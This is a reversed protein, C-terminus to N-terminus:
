DMYGMDRLRKQIREERMKDLNIREAKKPEKEPILSETLQRLKQCLMREQRALNLTEGPDTRLDYLEEPLEPNKLGYTYKHTETRVGHILFDSPVGTVSVFAASSEWFRGKILPLCSRGDIGRWLSPAAGILDLVTPMIDISRIIGEHVMDAPLRGPWHLILPVRVLFDYVHIAHGECLNKRYTNIFMRGQMDNLRDRNVSQLFKKIKKQSFEEDLLKNKKLIATQKLPTQIFFFDKGLNKPMLKVLRFFDLLRTWWHFSFNNVTTHLDITDLMPIVSEAYLQHVVSPGTLFAIEYLARGKARKIRLRKCTYDVATGERYTEATTKEGHDGTFVILTEKDLANFIRGLEADLASVANEYDNRENGSRHTKPTKQRPLHLEWLHLMLFWPKRYYGDRLHQILHDGWSTHLYDSPARYEYRDFGRDLGLEPLLPGTVEAYRHYGLDKLIFTLLPVVEPLRYGWAQHVGHRPSYLGSLINVFSPTTLCKEAITTPFSVGERSIRDLNPTFTTRSNGLWKDSRACDAVIMLINPVKEAM